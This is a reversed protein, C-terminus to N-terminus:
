TLFTKLRREISKRICWFYLGMIFSKLILYISHSLNIAVLFLMVWGMEHQRHPDPNFDTFTFCINFCLVITYENFLEQMNRARGLKPKHIGQYILILINLLNLYIVRLSTIEVTFCIVVFFLRRNVFVSVYMMNIKSRVDLKFFELGWKEHTKKML